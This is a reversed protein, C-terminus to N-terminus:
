QFQNSWGPRSCLINTCRDCFQEGNYLFCQTAYYEVIKGVAEWDDKM